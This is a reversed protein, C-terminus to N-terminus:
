LGARLLAHEPRAYRGPPNATDSRQSTPRHTAFADPPHPKRSRQSTMYGALKWARMTAQWDKIAHGDNRWGSGECKAWFWEGDSAPLGLEVAYAIVEDRTGRTKAKTDLKAEIEPPPKGNDIGRLNRPSRDGEAAKRTHVHASLPTPTPPRSPPSSPSPIPDLASSESAKLVSESSQSSESAESNNNPQKAASKILKLREYYRRNRAARKTDSPNTAAVSVGKATIRFSRGSAIIASLIETSLTM